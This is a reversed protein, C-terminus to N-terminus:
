QKMAKILKRESDGKHEKLVQNLHTITQETNVVHWVFQKYFKMEESTTKNQECEEKLLQLKKVWKGQSKQFKAKGAAITAKEIEKMMMETDKKKGEVDNVIGEFKQM